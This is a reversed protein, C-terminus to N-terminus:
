SPNRRGKNPSASERASGPGPHPNGSDARIRAPHHGAGVQVVESGRVHSTGPGPEARSDADRVFSRRFGFGKAITSLDKPLRARGLM